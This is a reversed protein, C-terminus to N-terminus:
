GFCGDQVQDRMFRFYGFSDYFVVRNSKIQAFLHFCAHAVYVSTLDKRVNFSEGVKSRPIYTKLLRAFRNERNQVPGIKPHILIHKACGAQAKDITTFLKKGPWPMVELKPQSLTKNKVRSM